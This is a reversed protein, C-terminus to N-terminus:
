LKDLINGAQDVNRTAVLAVGTGAINEDSGTWGMGASESDPAPNGGYM